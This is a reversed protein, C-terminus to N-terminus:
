TPLFLVSLILWSNFSNLSNQENFENSEHGIGKMRTRCVPQEM